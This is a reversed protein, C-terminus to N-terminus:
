QLWCDSLFTQDVLITRDAVHRLAMSTSPNLLAVEAHRGFDKVLQLAHCFDTDASVLIAVEYHGTIGHLVMETALMIDVGKEQPPSGPPNPYVLRGLRLELYDVGRLNEFFKQQALFAEPNRSRELPASYYYIRQLRRGGALKRAFALFDLDTRGIRQRLSHYLNSGDMYVNVREPAPIDPLNPITM